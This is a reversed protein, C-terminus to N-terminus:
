SLVPGYFFILEEHPQDLQIPLVKLLVALVDRASILALDPAVVVVQLVFQVAIRGLARRVRNLRDSPARFLNPHEAIQELFISVIVSGVLGV